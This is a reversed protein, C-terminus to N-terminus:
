RENKEGKRLKWLNYINEVIRKTSKGDPKYIFKELDNLNKRVIKRRISENFFKKLIDFSEDIEVKVLNKMKYREFIEVSFEPIKLWVIPKELIITDLITTSGFSIVVFSESITKYLLKQNDSISDSKIIKLNFEKAFNEYISLDKEAPHPKIVIERKFGIKRLKKLIIKLYKKYKKRSLIKDKCFPQTLILIHKNKNKIKKKFNITEDFINTGTIKVKEVGKEELIKKYAEGFAFFYQNDFSVFYGKRFIGMGHQAIIIPIQKSYAAAHASEDMIGVMTYLLKINNIEFIDKFSFFYLFAFSLWSM